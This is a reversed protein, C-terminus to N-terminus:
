WITDQCCHIDFLINRYGRSVKAISSGDLLCSFIDEQDGSLWFLRQDAALFAVNALPEGRVVTIASQSSSTTPASLRDCDTLSLADRTGVLLRPVPSETSTYAWVVESGPGEGASTRAWVQIDITAHL